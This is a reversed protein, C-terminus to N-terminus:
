TPPVFAKQCLCWEMTQSQRLLSKRLAEIITDKSNSINNGMFDVDLTPRPLFEDYAYLLAGGKIIFNRYHRSRSLRYLLREQLYRVLIQQYRINDHNSLNLLRAKISHAINKAM